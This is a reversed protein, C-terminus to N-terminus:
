FLQQLILSTRSQNYINKQLRELSAATSNLHYCKHITRTLRVPGSKKKSVTKTVVIM